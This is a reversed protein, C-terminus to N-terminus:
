MKVSFEPYFNPAMMPHPPMMFYSYPNMPNMYYYPLFPLYENTEVSSKNQNRESM